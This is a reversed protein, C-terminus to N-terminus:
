GNTSNTTRREFDTLFQKAYQVAQYAQLAKRLRIRTRVTPLSEFPDDCNYGFSYPYNGIWVTFPGVVATHRDAATVGMRLARRLAKDWAYGTRRTQFWHWPLLRYWDM